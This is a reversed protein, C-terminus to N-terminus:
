SLLSLPAYVLLADVLPAGVDATVLTQHVIVRPCSLPSGAGEPRDWATISQNCRLTLRSRLARCRGSRSREVAQLVLFSTLASGPSRSVSRASPFRRFAASAVSNSQCFC